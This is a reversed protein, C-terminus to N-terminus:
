RAPAGRTTPGGPPKEKPPLKAKSEGLKTIREVPFHHSTPSGNEEFKGKLIVDVYVCGNTFWTVGTVTAKLGTISEKVEDGCDVPSDALAPLKASVGDDAFALVTEDVTIPDILKNDTTKPQITIRCLGNFTKSIATVSGIIGTTEDSVVQGMKFKTNPLM